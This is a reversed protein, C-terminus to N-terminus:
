IRTLHLSANSFTYFVHEVLWLDESCDFVGEYGSSDPRIVMDKARRKDMTETASAADWSTSAAAKVLRTVHEVPWTVLFAAQQPEYREIRPPNM